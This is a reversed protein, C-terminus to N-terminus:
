EFWHFTANINPTATHAQSELIIGDDAALVGFLEGGPAAVWRFTARQNLGIMLLSSNATITPVATTFTGGNGAGIPTDSIPDLANENLDTGGTGTDTSRQVDFEGAQDAPAADSGIVIDYVAVRVTASGTLNIIPLDTGAPTQHTVSYRRGM